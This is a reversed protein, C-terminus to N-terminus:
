KSSSGTPEAQRDCSIEFDCFSRNMEREVFLICFEGIVSISAFLVEIVCCRGCACRKERFASHVVSVVPVSFLVSEAYKLSRQIQHHSRLPFFVAKRSGEAKSGHNDTHSFYFSNGYTTLDNWAKQELSCCM